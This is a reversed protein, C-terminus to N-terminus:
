VRLVNLQPKREILNMLWLQKSHVGNMWGGRGEDMRGEGVGERGEM